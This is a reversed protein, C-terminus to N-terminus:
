PVKYSLSTTQERQIIRLVVIEDKHARRRFIQRQSFNWASAFHDKLSKGRAPTLSIQRNGVEMRLWTLGGVKDGGRCSGGHRFVICHDRKRGAQIGGSRNQDQRACRGETSLAGHFIDTM